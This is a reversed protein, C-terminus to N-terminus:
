CRLPFSAYPVALLPAAVDTALESPSSGDTGADHAPLLGAFAPPPVVAKRASGGSAAELELPLDTCGACPETEAHAGARGYDSPACCPAGQFEIQVHGTGSVCLVAVSSAGQALL